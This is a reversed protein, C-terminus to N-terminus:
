AKSPVSDVPGSDRIPHSAAMMITTTRAIGTKTWRAADAERLIGEILDPCAECDREVGVRQEAAALGDPHGRRDEHEKAYEDGAREDTEDGSADFAPQLLQTLPAGSGHPAAM